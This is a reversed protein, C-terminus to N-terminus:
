TLVSDYPCEAEDVNAGRVLARLCKRISRGIQLAADLLAFPSSPRTVSGGVLKPAKEDSRRTALDGAHDLRRVQPGQEDVNLMRALHGLRM